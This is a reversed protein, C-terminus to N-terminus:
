TQFLVGHWTIFAADWLRYVGCISGLSYSSCARETETELACPSRPSVGHQANAHFGGLSFVGTADRMPTCFFSASM